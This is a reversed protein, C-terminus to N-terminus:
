WGLETDKIEIKQSQHRKLKAQDDQTWDFEELVIAAMTKLEKWKALSQPEIKARRSAIEFWTEV